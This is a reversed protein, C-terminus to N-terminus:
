YKLSISLSWYSDKMKKFFIKFLLLSELLHRQINLLFTFWHLRWIINVQNQIRVTHRKTVPDQLCSRLSDSYHSYVSIGGLIDSNGSLSLFLCVSRFSFWYCHFLRCIFFFSQFCFGFCFTNLKVSDPNLQYYQVFHM